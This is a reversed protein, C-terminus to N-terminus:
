LFNKREFAVLKHSFERKNFYTISIKLDIHNKDTLLIMLMKHRRPQQRNKIQKINDHLNEQKDGGCM